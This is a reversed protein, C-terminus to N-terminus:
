ASPRHRRARGQDGSRRSAPTRSSPTSRRRRRSPRGQRRRSRRGGRGRGLPPPLAGEEIKNKLEVLEPVTMSSAARPHVAAMTISRTETPENTEADADASTDSVPEDAPAASTDVGLGASRPRLSLPTQCREDAPAAGTDSTPGEIEAPSATDSVEEDAPAAGTDSVERWCRRPRRSAPTQCRDDAATPEAFRRRGTGAAARDPRRHAWLSKCPANV